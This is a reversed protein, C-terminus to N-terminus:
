ADVGGITPQPPRPDPHAGRVPCDSLRTLVDGPDTTM